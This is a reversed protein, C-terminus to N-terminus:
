VQSGDSAGFKFHDANTVRLPMGLGVRNSGSAEGARKDVIRQTARKAGSSHVTFEVIKSPKAESGQDYCLNCTECGVTGHYVQNPCAMVKHGAITGGHFSDSKPSTIAVKWGRTLAEKAEDETEVSALLTWGKAMDPSLDKWKHTYGWMRLGTNDPDKADYPRRAALQNVQHIYDHDVDGSELHRVTAKPAASVRILDMADKANNEGSFTNGKGEEVRSFHTTGAPSTPLAAYCDPVGGEGMHICGDSCTDVGRSTTIVPRRFGASEKGRMKRSGSNLVVKTKPM